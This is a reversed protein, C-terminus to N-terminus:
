FMNARTSPTLKSPRGEDIAGEDHDYEILPPTRMERDTAITDLFDKLTQFLELCRFIRSGDNM